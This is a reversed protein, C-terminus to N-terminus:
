KRSIFREGRRYFRWPFEVGQSIGIRPTAVIDAPDLPRENSDGAAIWLREGATLDAGDLARTLGMAQCLKGPGGCLARGLRVRAAETGAESHTHAQKPERESLSRNQRMLEVGTLPELARILVAEAVGHPATVANFCFYMGYTLYIYAHGPPGFMTACRPTQGRYAHCAPDNHLYAETEAIRGALLGEPSDHVLVCNLLARAVTLTNQLYFARPLPEGFACATRLDGM